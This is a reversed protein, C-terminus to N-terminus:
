KIELDSIHSIGTVNEPDIHIQVSERKGSISKVRLFPSMMKNDTDGWALWDVGLIYAITVHHGQGDNMRIVYPATDDFDFLRYIYEGISVLTDMHDEEALYPQRIAGIRQVAAVMSGANLAAHDIDEMLDGYIFRMAREQVEFTPICPVVSVEDVRAYGFNIFGVTQLNSVNVQECLKQDQIYLVIENDSPALHFGYSMASYGGLVTKPRLSTLIFRNLGDEEEESKEGSLIPMYCPGYVIIERNMYPWRADFEHLLDRIEDLSLEGNAIMENAAKVDGILADLSKQQEHESGYYEHSKM